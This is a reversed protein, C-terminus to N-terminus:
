TGEEYLAGELETAQRAVAARLVLSAQYHDREEVDEIEVPLVALLLAALERALAELTAERTDPALLFRRVDNWQEELTNSEATVDPDKSVHLLVNRAYQPTYSGFEKSGVGHIDMWWPNAHTDKHWSMIEKAWKHRYDEANKESLFLHFDEVYTTDSEAPYYLGDYESIQYLTPAVLYAKM